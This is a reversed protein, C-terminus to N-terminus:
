RHMSEQNKILSPGEFRCCEETQETGEIEADIAAEVEEEIRIFVQDGGNSEDSKCLQNYVKWMEVMDRCKEKKEQEYRRKEKELVQYFEVKKGHDKAMEKNLISLETTWYPKSIGPVIRPPPSHRAIEVTYWSLMGLTRELELPNKCSLFNNMRLYNFTEEIKYTYQDLDLQKLNYHRKNYTLGM